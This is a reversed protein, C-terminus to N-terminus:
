RDIREFLTDIPQRCSGKAWVWMLYRDLSPSGADTTVFGLVLADRGEYRAKAGYAPLLPEDAPLTDACRRVQASVGGASDALRRTFEERLTSVDAAAYRDAFSRFLPSTRGLEALEESTLAGADADFEPQPGDGEYMTTGSSAAETTVDQARGPGSLAESAGGGGAGGGAGADADSSDELGGFSEVEASSRGAQSSESDDGGGLFGGTLVLAAVLVAAASGLAPVVWRRWGGDGPGGALDANAPATFLEQALARHLRTREMDDLGPEPSALALVAQEEARCEACGELHARVEGALDAPLEGRVHEGLLESCRDHTMEDM